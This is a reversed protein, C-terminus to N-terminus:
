IQLDDAKRDDVIMIVNIISIKKEEKEKINRVIFPKNHNWYIIKFIFFRKNIM